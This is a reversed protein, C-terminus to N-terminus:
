CIKKEFDIGKEGAGAIWGMDRQSAEPNEHMRCSFVGGFLPVGLPRYEPVAPTFYASFFLVGGLIGKDTSVIFATSRDTGAIYINNFFRIHYTKLMLNM